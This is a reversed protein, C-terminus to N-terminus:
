APVETTSFTINNEEIYRDFFVLWEASNVTMQDTGEAWTYDGTTTNISLNGLKAQERIAAQQAAFAVDYSAKEEVSLATNAWITITLLTSGDSTTPVNTWNHTMISAM